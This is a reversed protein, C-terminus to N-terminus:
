PEADDTETTAPIPPTPSAPAPTSPAPQSTPQPTPPANITRVLHVIGLVVFFIGWVVLLAVWRRRNVRASM